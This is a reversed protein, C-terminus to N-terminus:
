LRNKDAKIFHRPYTVPILRTLEELLGISFNKYKLKRLRKFDKRRQFSKADNLMEKKEKESLM